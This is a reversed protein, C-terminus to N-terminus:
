SDQMKALIPVSAALIRFCSRISVQTIDHFVIFSQLLPRIYCLIYLVLVFVPHKLMFANMASVAQEQEQKIRLWM